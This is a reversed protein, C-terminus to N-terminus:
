NRREEKKRRGEEKKRRGEGGKKRRGEKGGSSDHNDNPTGLHSEHQKNAKGEFTKEEGLYCSVFVLSTRVNNRRTLRSLQTICIFYKQFAKLVRYVIIIPLEQAVTFHVVKCIISQKLVSNTRWLLRIGFHIYLRGM